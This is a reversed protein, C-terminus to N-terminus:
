RRNAYSHGYHREPTVNIIASLAKVWTVNPQRKIMLEEYQYISPNEPDDMTPNLRSVLFAGLSMGILLGVLRTFVRDM